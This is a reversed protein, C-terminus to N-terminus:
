GGWALMLCAVTNFLAHCVMPGILSQTRLALWGLGLALVFLPVAQPWGHALAFFMASGFISLRAYAWQRAGPGAGNGAVDDPYYVRLRWLWGAYLAVFLGYFAVSAIAAHVAAAAPPEVQDPQLQHAAESLLVATVPMAGGLFIALLFTAQGILSARRLWGQLIGRFLWEETLPAGIVTMFVLLAWEHPDLGQAVLVEFANKEAPFVLTVLYYVGLAIPALVLFALVGLIVNAAWRARTVGLQHPRTRSVGFLIATLVALTLAVTFPSTLVVLRPAAARVAAEYEKVDSSPPVALLAAVALVAPTAFCFVNLFALIVEGGGWRGPRLRRLPLPRRRFCPAFGVLLLAIAAGIGGALLYAQLNLLLEDWPDTM